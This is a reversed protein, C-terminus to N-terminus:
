LLAWAAANWPKHGGARHLVRLPAPIPLILGQVNCACQGRTTPAVVSIGNRCVIESWVRQKTLNIGLPGFSQSYHWAHVTLDRYKNYASAPGPIFSHWSPNCLVFKASLPNYNITAVSAAREVPRVM